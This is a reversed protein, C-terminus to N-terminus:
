KQAHKSTADERGDAKNTSEDIRSVSIESFGKSFGGAM